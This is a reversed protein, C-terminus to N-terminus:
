ILLKRIAPLDLLLGNEEAYLRAQLASGTIWDYDRLLCVPCWDQGRVSPGIVHLALTSLSTLAFLAPDFDLANGTGDLLRATLEIAQKDTQAKLHGLQCKDIERELRSADDECLRM